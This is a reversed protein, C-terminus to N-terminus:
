CFACMQQQEGGGRVSNGTREDLNTRRASRQDYYGGENIIKCFVESQPKDGAEREGKIERKRKELPGYEKRLPRELRWSCVHGLDWFFCNTFFAAFGPRPPPSPRRSTERGEM